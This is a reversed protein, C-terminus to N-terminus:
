YLGSTGLTPHYQITHCQTYLHSNSSCISSYLFTDIFWKFKGVDHKKGTEMTSGIIPESVVNDAASIATVTITYNSDEELETINCCTSEVTITTNGVDVM